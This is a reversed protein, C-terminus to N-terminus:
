PPGDGQAQVLPPLGSRKALRERLAACGPAAVHLHAIMFPDALFQLVQRPSPGNTFAYMDAVPKLAAAQYSELVALRYGRAALLMRDHRTLAPALQHDASLKPARVPGRCASVVPGALVRAQPATVQLGCAARNM